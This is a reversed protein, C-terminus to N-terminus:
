KPSTESFFRDWDICKAYFQAGAKTLHRCDQSLFRGDDSFVRVKGDPQQVYSILDIYIDGYLAKYKKNKEDYGDEMPITMKHYDKSFRHSYVQGNSEGFNKEGFIYLKAHPNCLSKVTEVLEEKLGLTSIFVVDAESFRRSETSYTNLGSFSLEVNESIDSEAIINVLDRGFSNGIV